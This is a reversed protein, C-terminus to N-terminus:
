PQAIYEINRGPVTNAITEYWSVKQAQVYMSKAFSVVNENYWYGGAVIGVLVLVGIIRRALKKHRHVAVHSDQENQSLTVSKKQANQYYPRDSISNKLMNQKTKQNEFVNGGTITPVPAGANSSRKIAVKYSETSVQPFFMDAGSMVPLEIGNHQTKETHLPTDTSGAVSMTSTEALPLMNEAESFYRTTMPVNYKNTIDGVLSSSFGASESQVNALLADKQKKHGLIGEKYIMWHRGVKRALVAKSRALEGIYDQTYGTLAVARASTVFEKGDFVLVDDRVNGTKVKHLPAGEPEHGEKTQIHEQLGKKHAAHVDKKTRSTINEELVFWQGSSRKCSLSGSRCLQGVYDRSYGLMESAGAVTVYNEGAIQITKM